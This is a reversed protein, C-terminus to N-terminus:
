VAYIQTHITFKKIWELWLITFCLCVSIMFKPKVRLLCLLLVWLGNVYSAHAINLALQM